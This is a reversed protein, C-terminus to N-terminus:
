TQELTFEITYIDTIIPEEVIWRIIKRQNNLTPRCSTKVRDKEFDDDMGYLNHISIDINPFFKYNDPAKIIIEFRDTPLTSTHDYSDRGKEKFADKFIERIEIEWDYFCPKSLDPNIPDVLYCKFMAQHTVEQSSPDQILYPTAIFDVPNDNIHGRVKQHNLAQGTWDMKHKLCTLSRKGINVIEYKHSFKADGNPNEIEIKTSIQKYRALKPQIRVQKELDENKYELEQKAIKLNANEKELEVRSFKKKYLGYTLSAVFLIFVIVLIGVFAYLSDKAFCVLVLAIGLTVATEVTPNKLSDEIHKRLSNM